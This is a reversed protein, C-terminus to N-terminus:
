HKVLAESSIWPESVTALDLAPEVPVALLDAPDQVKEALDVGKNVVVIYFFFAFVFAMSSMFLFMGAQNYDQPRKESM